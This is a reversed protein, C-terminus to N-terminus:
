HFLLEFLIFISDTNEVLFFCIEKKRVTEWCNTSLFDIQFTSCVFCGEIYVQASM